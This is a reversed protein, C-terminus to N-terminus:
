QRAIAAAMARWHGMRPTAAEVERHSTGFRRGILFPAFQIALNRGDVPRSLGAASGASNAMTSAYRVRHTM